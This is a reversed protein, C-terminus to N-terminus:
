VIDSNHRLKDFLAVIIARYVVGAGILAMNASCAFFVV